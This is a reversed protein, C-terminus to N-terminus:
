ANCLAGRVATRRDTWGGPRWRVVGSGVSPGRRVRCPYSSYGRNPRWPHRGLRNLLPADPVQQRAVEVPLHRRVMGHLDVLRGACPRPRRSQLHELHRDGGDQVVDPGLERPPDCRVPRVVPEIEDALLPEEVVLLEADRRGDRHAALALLPGVDPVDQVLHRAAEDDHRVHHVGREEDDCQRRAHASLPDVRRAAPQFPLAEAVAVDEVPGLDFPEHGVVRRRHHVDQAVAHVLVVDLEDEGVELLAAVPHPRGRDRGHGRIPHQGAHRQPDVHGHPRGEDGM